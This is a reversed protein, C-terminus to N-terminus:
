LRTIGIIHRLGVCRDTCFTLNLFGYFSIFMTWLFQLLANRHPCISTILHRIVSFKIFVIVKRVPCLRDVNIKIISTVFLFLTPRANFCDCSLQRKRLACDASSYLIQLFRFEDAFLIRVPTVARMCAVSIINNLFLHPFSLKKKAFLSPPLTDKQHYYGGKM